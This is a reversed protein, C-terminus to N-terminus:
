TVQPNLQPASNQWEKVGNNKLNQKWKLIVLTIDDHQSNNQSFLAVKNMVEKSIEDAEEDSNELLIREFNKSGFDELASNKAETIGDTYLVLIDNNELKLNMEDLSENFNESYDLGLGIGSPRIQRAENNRILIVPCHGARAISLTDETLDILGYAASVFNKRDLTRKLIENAKILVNRPSEMTKSLSEFIGKIEAMIFAASIGKGSVDAIVFGLKNPYLEFFDYYDGGVEFAPIFVSSIQLKELQPNRSPLIKRQIERAVDLEKELREKEISEELLRSNEIALSAYDSFTTMADKDEDDFIFDNKKVAILYGRLENHAKLPSVAVHVYNDSLQPKNSFRNLNLFFTQEGTKASKSEFIFKTLINSDYYGINKNAIAKFEGEDKWVLWAAHANCVKASIETLSETLEKFDM